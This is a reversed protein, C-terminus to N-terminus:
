DAVTVWLGDDHRHHGVMVGQVEVQHRELTRPPHAPNAPKLTVQNEGECYHVHKLTPGEGAIWVVGIKGLRIDWLDDTPHIVVIDGDLIQANVMSDGSVTLAYDGERYRKGDLRIRDCCIPHETLYGAQIIGKLPLEGYLICIARARGHGRAIFGKQQLRDLLDQVFSTSSEQLATKIERITPAYGLLNIWLRLCDHLRRESPLLTM